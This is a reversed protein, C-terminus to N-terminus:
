ALEARACGAPADWGAPMAPPVPPGWPTCTPGDPHGLASCCAWRAPAALKGDRQLATVSADPDSAASGQDYDLRAILVACCATVEPDAVAADPLQFAVSGDASVLSALQAACCDFIPGGLSAGADVHLGEPLLDSEPPPNCALADRSGAEPSTAGDRMAGVDGGADATSPVRGESDAIGGCGGCGVAAVSLAVKAAARLAARFVLTDM